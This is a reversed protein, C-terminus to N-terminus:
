LHPLLPVSPSSLTDGLQKGGSIGGYFTSTVMEAFFEAGPYYVIAVSDFDADGELTVARGMHMPGCGLEAMMGIMARGYGANAKREDAGGEKMFNLVVLADKGYDRNALLKKVVRDRQARQEPPAASADGPTFPVRAPSRALIDAARVGLLAMPLMLNTSASRQMGQAYSAAFGSRSAQYAPKSAAEDYANRSPYQALVFADWDEQPIQRSELANLAIKGAYVVIAGAGETAEVFGRVAALLEQGPALRLVTVVHFASSSHFLPQRDAVVSRRAKLYRFHQGLSALLAVLLVISVTWYFVKM